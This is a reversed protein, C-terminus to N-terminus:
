TQQKTGLKVHDRNACRRRQVGQPPLGQMIPVNMLHLVPLDSCPQFGMMLM